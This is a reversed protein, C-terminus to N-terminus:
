AMFILPYKLIPRQPSYKSLLPIFRYYTPSFQMILLKVIYVEGLKILIIYDLLILPCPM